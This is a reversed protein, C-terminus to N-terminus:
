PRSRAGAVLQGLQGPQLGVPREAFFLELPGLLLDEGSRVGVPKPTRALLLRRLQDGSDAGAARRGGLVARPRPSWGDRGRTDTVGGTAVGTAPDEDAPKTPTPSRRGARRIM